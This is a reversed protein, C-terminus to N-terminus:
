VSLFDAEDSSEGYIIFSTDHIDDNGSGLDSNYSSDSTNMFCPGDFMRSSLQSHLSVDDSGMMQGFELFSGEPPFEALLCFDPRERYLQETPIFSPDNCRSCWDEESALGERNSVDLHRLFKFEGAIVASIFREVETKRLHMCDRLILVELLNGGAGGGLKRLFAGSISYSASFDLHKLKRFGKVLALAKFDQLKFGRLTLSNLDPCNQVLDTCTPSLKLSDDRGTKSSEFFLREIMHCYKSVSELTQRLDVHLGVVELDLLSPCVSLAESLATNDVREINNLHLRRLLAGPAGSDLSLSSLCSRSLICSEKGQRSRKDNWSFGSVHSSNRTSYVCPQSSGFSAFPGSVLGLKISRLAKGARQIMTSVVLNNVKPIVTMLDICSYCIPDLACKSFFSCAAAAYCVSQTDLMSFVKITLDAPLPWVVANHLSGRKRASRKGAELLVSGLRIAREIMMSEDSDSEILRDFACNLSPTTSSDSLTLFSQLLSDLQIADDVAPISVPTAPITDM